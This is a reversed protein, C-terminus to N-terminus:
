KVVHEVLKCIAQRYMIGALIALTHVNTHIHKYIYMYTLISHTRDQGCISYSHNLSHLTLVEMQQLNKSATARSIM